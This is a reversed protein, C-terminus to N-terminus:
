NMCLSFLPTGLAGSGLGGGGRGREDETVTMEVVAV